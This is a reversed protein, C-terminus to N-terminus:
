HSATLDADVREYADALERILTTDFYNAPPRHIEVTAVHADDVSLTIDSL